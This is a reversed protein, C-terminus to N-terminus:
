RSKINEKEAKLTNKMTRYDLYERSKKLKVGGRSWFLLFLLFLVACGAGALYFLCVNTVRLVLVYPTGLLWDLPIQLSVPFMAALILLVSGLLFLVCLTKWIGTCSRRKKRYAKKLERLMQTRTDM